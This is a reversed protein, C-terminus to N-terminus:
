RVTSLDSVTGGPVGRGVTSSESILAMIITGHSPTPYLVTQGGTRGPAACQPLVPRPYESAPYLDSGDPVHGPM